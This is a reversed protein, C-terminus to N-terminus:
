PNGDLQAELRSNEFDEDRLKRIYGAMAPMLVDLSELEEDTFAEDRRIPDIYNEPYKAFEYIAKIIPEPINILRGASERQKELAGGWTAAGDFFNPAHDITGDALLMELFKKRYVDKWLDFALRHDEESIRDALMSARRVIRAAMVWDSRDFFTDRLLDHAEDISEKAEKLYFESTSRSRSAAFTFLVSFVGATAGIAAAGTFERAAVLAIASAVLFLTLGLTYNKTSLHSQWQM